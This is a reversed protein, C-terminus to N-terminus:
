KSCQQNNQARFMCGQCNKLGKLNEKIPNWHREDGGNFCTFMIELRKAICAQRNSIKQNIDQLCDTGKCELPNKTKNECLDRKEAELVDLQASSCNGPPKIGDGPYDPGTPFKGYASGFTSEWIQNLSAPLGGGPGPSANAATSVVMLTGAVTAAVAFEVVFPAALIAIVALALLAYLGINPKEVPQSAPETAPQGDCGPDDTGGNFGGDILYAGSGDVPDVLIYGVGSWNGNALERDPVVAEKGAAIANAIDTKVDEPISLASLVAQNDATIRLVSAGNDLARKLLRVASGGSGVERNFTVDFALGEANSGQLGSQRMFAVPIRGDNTTAAIAVRKVDVYRGLYSASRPIGFFYRTVLPAVFAGVSPLRVATVGHAVAALQDGLDHLMWYVTGVTQLNESATNSAVKAFRDDLTKQTVGAADVAFVIEDGVTVRYSAPVASQQQPDQMSVTVIQQTGFQTPAGEAIVNDDLSLRPTGKILYAPLSSANQSRLNQLTTADAATAPAFTLGLKRNGIAALPVSKAFLSSDYAVDTDSAYYNVSVMWQLNAPLSQLKSAQVLVKYPLTGLLIPPTQPRITKSRQLKDVAEALGVSKAWSVANHQYVEVQNALATNNGGTLRNGNSDIVASQLFAQQYASKDFGLTAAIDGQSAFDYQKFSPDMPVWTSPTRNVAGRSPAYDVYAEVWVHEMRIAKVTGGSVLAANPIGGQGLLSQAAEPKTVGGVWNMVKDVPVEITGYVYRAPIGAARYLAILLSATDFANGRQNLLTLESGQISGYSPIFTITNRVWNYIEVPNNHLEAAKDKIAQTIQVDDTAALDQANPTTPLTAQALQVGDMSLSALQVKEYKPPFLKAQYSEKTEYPKRVQGKPTGFPLKNPDTYQHAKGNPHKVM